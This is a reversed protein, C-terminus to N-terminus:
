FAKGSFTNVFLYLFSGFTAPLPQVQNTFISGAPMAAIFRKLDPYMIVLRCFNSTALENQLLHIIHVHVRHFGPQNHLWVMPQIAASRIIHM